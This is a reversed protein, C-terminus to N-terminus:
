RLLDELCVKSTKSGRIGWSVYYIVSVTSEQLCLSVDRQYM